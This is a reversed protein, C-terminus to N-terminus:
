PSIIVEFFLFYNICVSLVTKRIPTNTRLDFLVISRDSASAALIDREIPNYSVKIYTDPSNNFVLHSLPESRHYDWVYIGDSGSTAFRNEKYHHSLSTFPEEGVWTLM